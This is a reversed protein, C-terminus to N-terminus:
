SVKTRIGAGLSPVRWCADANAAASAAFGGIRAAKAGFTAAFGGIIAANRHARASLSLSHRGGMVLM